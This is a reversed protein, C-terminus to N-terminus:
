STDNTEPMVDEKLLQPRRCGADCGHEEEMNFGLNKCKKTIALQDVIVGSVFLLCIKWNKCLIIRVM